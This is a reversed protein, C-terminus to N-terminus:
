ILKPVMYMIFYGDKDVAAKRRGEGGGGFFNWSSVFPFFFLCVLPNDFLTTALLVLEATWSGSNVDRGNVLLLQCM